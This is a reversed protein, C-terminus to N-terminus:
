LFREQTEFENHIDYIILSSQVYKFTSQKHIHLNLMAVRTTFLCHDASM